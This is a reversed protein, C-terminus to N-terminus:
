RRTLRRDFSLVRKAQEVHMLTGSFLDTGQKRAEEFATTEATSYTLAGTNAKGLPEGLTKSTGPDITTGLDRSPKAPANRPGTLLKARTM